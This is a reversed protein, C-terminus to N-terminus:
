VIVFDNIDISVIRRGQWILEARRPTADAGTWIDVHFQTDAFSDDIQIRIGDGDKGCTSIYGSSLAEMFLWPAGIPTILGDALLEFVLVETDFTLQGTGKRIRATIGSITDPETVTISMTGESDVQCDMGFSYTSDGYDATVAAHFRCESSRLISDRLAVARNILVNEASCGALLLVVSLVAFLRKM